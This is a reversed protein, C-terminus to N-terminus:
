RTGSVAAGQCGSSMWTSTGMARGEWVEESERREPEAEGVGQWAMEASKVPFLVLRVISLLNPHQTKNKKGRSIHQFPEASPLRPTM